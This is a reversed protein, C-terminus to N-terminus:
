YAMAGCVLVDASGWAGAIGGSTFNGIPVTTTTGVGTQRTVDVTASQTTVDTCEVHWGTFAAPLGITGTSATGGTGVNITFAATGNSHSVSPSTGFGSSITPANSLLFSIGAGFQYKDFAVSSGAATQTIQTAALVGAFNVNFLNTGGNTHFDLFYGAFGSPGNMGLITGSTNFTTPANSSQNFYFYPFTTTGSGGTIVTGTLTFPSASLAGAGAFSFLSSAGGSLTHTAYTFDANGCGLVGASTYIDLANATACTSTLPVQNFTGNNNSCKVAHATSDGYCVDNAALGSAATGEPLVLTGGVGGSSGSRLPGGSTFGNTQPCTLTNATTIGNDCGLITGTGSTTLTGGTGVVLAATNTGATITSFAPTASGGGGGARASATSQTISVLNTGSVLTSMRMRVHTYGAVNAQWTGTSTTSTVATTSNSPTVNLAVWTGGGDGSAEFQITNASANTSVTFAAGGQNVDVPVILCVTGTATCTSAAASLTNDTRVSTGSVTSPFLCAAALFFLILNTITKHKPKTNTM